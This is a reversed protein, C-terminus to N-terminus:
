SDNKKSRDPPVLFYLALCLLAWIAYASNFTWETDDHLLSHPVWHAAFTTSYGQEGAWDRLANEWVTLPCPMQFIALIVVALIMWLHLRRFWRVRIFSWGFLPGLLILPAPLFVGVVYAFHLYRVINAIWEAVM